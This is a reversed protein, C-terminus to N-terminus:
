VMSDSNSSVKERYHTREGLDQQSRDPFCLQRVALFLATDIGDTGLQSGMKATLQDLQQRGHPWRVELVKHCDDLLQYVRARTVGMAQAQARVSLQDEGNIGLRQCAIRNVTVGCDTEIQALIPEALKERVEAQEPLETQAIMQRLWGAVEFIRQSGLQRRLEADGKDGHQQAKEYVKHFVELVCRVRKEGHTRLSRIQSLSLKEYESLRKFWIVTPMSKLSDAVRGIRENGLNLDRVCATWQSWLAESVLFADFAHSSDIRMEVNDDSLETMGFPVSPPQDKTARVLLKILSSIKKQGIGPTASLEDFPTGLLDGISRDLFSRPLRRDNPLTWYGLPKSLRDQYRDQLLTDRISEFSSILEYDRTSAVTRRNMDCGEEGYQSAVLKKPGHKGLIRCAIIQSL